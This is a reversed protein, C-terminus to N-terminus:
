FLAINNVSLLVTFSFKKLKLLLFIIHCMLGWQGNQDTRGGSWREQFLIKPLIVMHSWNVKDMSKEMAKQLNAIRFDYKIRATRMLIIGTPMSRFGNEAFPTFKKIM